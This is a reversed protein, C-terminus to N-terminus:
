PVAALHAAEPATLRGTMPNGLEHQLRRVAARTDPGFVGDAAGDYYGLRALAAQVQRRQALSMRGEEPVPSVAPAATPPPSGPTVRPVPPAAGAVRGSAAGDQGAPLPAVSPPVILAAPPVLPAPDSPIQLLLLTGPTRAVAEQLRAALTGVEVGAGAPGSLVGALAHALAAETGPGQVVAVVGQGAGGPTGLLAPLGLGPGETSADGAGPEGPAPCVADLLLLGAPAGSAALTRRLSAVLVGQTLLDTGTAPRAAAPLLFPRGEHEMVVGCAYILGPVPPPGGVRAALAGIAGAVEGNSGDLRTAVSLGAGRLAAAVLPVAAACAPLGPRGAYAAEGLVLAAAPGPAAPEGRAGAVPLCVTLAVGAMIVRLRTRM